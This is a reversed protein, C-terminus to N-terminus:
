LFKTLVGNSVGRFPEHICIPTEKHFFNSFSNKRQVNELKVLIDITVLLCGANRLFLLKGHDAVYEYKFLYIYYYKYHLNHSPRTSALRYTKRVSM